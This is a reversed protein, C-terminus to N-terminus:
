HACRLVCAPKLALATEVELTENQIDFRSAFVPCDSSESRFEQVPFPV